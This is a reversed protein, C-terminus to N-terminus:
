NDDDALAAGEDGACVDGLKAAGGLPGTQKVHLVGHFVGGLRHNRRDVAGGQATTQFHGQGAVVAHRDRRGFAAQRFDGQAKKGAGAAGLTQRADDPHFLGQFHHGAAGVDRRRGTVGHTQNIFDNFLSFQAVAGQSEGTLDDGLSAGQLPNSIGVVLDLRRAAFWLNEGIEAFGVGSFEAAKHSGLPVNATDLSRHVLGELLAQLGLSSKEHLQHCTLLARRLAVAKEGLALCVLDGIYGVIRGQNGDIGDADQACAGHAAADGHIEGIGTNRHRDDLQLLGGEVTAKVNNALVILSRRRAAADSRGVHFLAHAQDGARQIHVGKGTDIHHDLRHELPHVDLLVDEGLQIRDALRARNQGGVSRGQVDVLDSRHGLARLRNDAQVEERGGIDHFQQFHDAGVMRALVDDGGGHFQGLLDALDRGQHPDAGTEDTVADEALALALRLFQHEFAGHGPVDVTHEIIEAEGHTGEGHAIQGTEVDAPDLFFGLTLGDAIHKTLHIAPALLGAGAIIVIVFVADGM